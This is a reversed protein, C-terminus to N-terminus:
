ISLAKGCKKIIILKIINQRSSKQPRFNDHFLHNRDTKSKERTLSFLHRRASIRNGPLNVSFLGQEKKFFRCFFGAFPITPTVTPHNHKIKLSLVRFQLPLGEPVTIWTGRQTSFGAGLTGM